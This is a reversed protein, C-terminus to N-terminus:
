LTQFSARAGHLPSLPQPQSQHQLRLFSPLRPTPRRLRPPLHRTQQFSKMARLTLQGSGIIIPPTPLLTAPCLSPILRSLTMSARWEETCPQPASNLLHRRRNAPPGLSPQPTSERLEPHFKPYPRLRPTLLLRQPSLVAKRLFAPTEQPTQPVSATITPPPLMSCPLFRSLTHLSLTLFGMCGTLQLRPLDRRLPGCCLSTAGSSSVSSINPATIDASATTFSSASSTTSNTSPDISRVKFNYATNPALGVLTVSHSTVYSTLGQTSSYSTDTSYLVTSDSLEDTTWTVTVSSTNPTGAAVSSIAPGTADSGGGGEGADQTGNAKASISFSLYSIDDNNDQTSIKYYYLTNLVTSSDAYSNTNINTITAISSFSTGDTSRMVNYQKFAASPPTAAVKWAVFLRYDAPSVRTNSTDQVMLATPTEPTTASVTTTTNGRADYFKAYVVDPDTALALTASSAYSVQSAGALDSNVSVKMQLATDDTASLTVGAPSTTADVAISPSGLAPDKTDFSFSASDANGINESGNGDDAVVRTVATASYFGDVDSKATWVISKGTGNTISAGANGSVTAAKIYIATGSNHAAATTNSVGRAITGQLDNGSKSTYTIIESEIMLTGSSPFLSSSSVTIATTDNSTLSENVTALSKYYLSVTTSSQVADTVDYGVTVAGASSQSATVNSVTPPSTKTITDSVTSSTNGKADKFQVYVTKTGDGATLTWSAVSTNFTIWNGSDNNLGDAALGSDNSIKMQGSVGSSMNDDTAALTLAVTFSTTTAAAAAISISVSAPNKTDLAYNASTASGVQNASAGDNAAVRVTATASYYGDLDTKATWTISKGTGNAVSGTSGSVTVAKIWITAGSSHAAALTNSAGRTITGALDNGSVSTYNIQEDDIFVTGSSPINTAASLTIATTDSNSLSENLTVGVQYLLTVTTSSSENDTVDYGVTVTGNSGQSATLNSVTPPSNVFTFSLSQPPDETLTGSFGGTNKARSRIQYTHNLTWAVSSTSYSWTATGTAAIWNESTQDFSNNSSNYWKNVSVDTDKISIEVSTMPGSGTGRLATVSYPEQPSAAAGAVTCSNGTASCIATIASSPPYEYLTGAAGANAGSGGTKTVSGTFTSGGTINLAIRGGGGGGGHSDGGGGNATISGAGALTGAQIWVSGGSGGGGDRASNNVNFQGDSGNAVISGSLTLTGTIILKVAGGGAGGTADYGGGGGSGLATPQTNSGHTIGGGGVSGNGGAGGYGGRGNLGISGTITANGSANIVLATGTAPHSLTGGSNITFTTTTITGSNYNVFNSITVSDFTAASINDANAVASDNANSDWILDGNTQSASKKLVTGPGGRRNGTGGYATPTISSSDTTYHVAIRGGAGGGGHTDGNGGSATISGAGAFTGTQIWVSGGSGGGGDRAEYGSANVDGNNGNATISGSVTLTGSVIFKVAGGGSGGSGDYGGGGGSGLATPQTNSGHTAGGGGVAGSGGSGGYGGGGGGGSSGAGSGGGAGTGNSTGSGGASGKGNVNISGGSQVDLTVATLSTLNGSITGGSQITVTSSGGSMNVTFANTGSATITGGNAVTINGTGSITDGNNMTNSSSVTCTDNLTGTNCAFNHAKANETEGFSLAIWHRGSSVATNRIKSTKGDCSYGPVTLTDSDMWDIQSNPVQNEGCFIGEFSIDDPYHTGDAAQIKLDSQSFTRFSTEWYDGTTLNSEVNLIELYAGALASFHSTSFAISNGKDKPAASAVEWEDCSSTEQNFKETPCSLVANVKEEPSIKQLSIDAQKFSLARDDVF